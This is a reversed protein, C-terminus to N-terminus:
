YMSQFSDAPGKAHGFSGVEEFQYYSMLFETAPLAFCLLIRCLLILLTVASGENELVRKCQFGAQRPM